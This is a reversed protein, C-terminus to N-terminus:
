KRRRFSGKTTSRFADSQERQFVGTSLFMEELSGDSEQGGGIEQRRNAQKRFRRPVILPRRIEDARGRQFVGTSLFFEEITRNNEEQLSSLEEGEDRRSGLGVVPGTGEFETTPLHDPSFPALQPQPGTEDCELETRTICVPRTVDRCYEEEIVNCRDEEVTRCEQEQEVEECVEENVTVCENASSLRWKM